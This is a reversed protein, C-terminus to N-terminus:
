GATARSVDGQPPGVKLLYDKPLHVGVVILNMLM